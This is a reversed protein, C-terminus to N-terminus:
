SCEHTRRGVNHWQMTPLTSDYTLFAMRDTRLFLSDRFLPTRRWKAGGRGMHRPRGRVRIEAARTSDQCAQRQSRPFSATVSLSRIM